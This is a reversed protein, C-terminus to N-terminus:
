FRLLAAIKGYPGLEPRDALALVETSQSVASQVAEEVIDESRQLPEGDVPCSEGDTGM